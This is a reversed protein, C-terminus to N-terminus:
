MGFGALTCRSPRARDSLSTYTETNNERVGVRFEEDGDAERAAEHVRVGAEDTEAVAIVVRRDAAEGGRVGGVVRAAVPIDVVVAHVVRHVADVGRPEHAASRLVAGILFYWHM